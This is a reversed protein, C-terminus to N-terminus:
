VPQTQSDPNNGNVATFIQKYQLADPVAGIYVPYNINGQFFMLLLSSGVRPVTFVGKPLNTLDPTRSYPNVDGNRVYNNSPNSYAGGTNLTGQVSTFNSSQNPIPSSSICINESVTAQGTQSDYLGIGVDGTVPTSPIAWPCFSRLYEVVDPTLSTSINSGLFRFQSIDKDKFLASLNASHIDPIFVQVRGSYPLVKDYNDIVIGKHVSTDPILHLM